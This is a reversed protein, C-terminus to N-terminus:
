DNSTESSHSLAKRIAEIISNAQVNRATDDTIQSRAFAEARRLVEDKADNSRQLAETRQREGALERDTAKLYSAAEPDSIELRAIVDDVEDYDCPLESPCRVRRDHAEIRGAARTLTGICAVPGKAQQRAIERLKEVLGDTQVELPPRSALAAEIIVQVLYRDPPNLCPTNEADHMAALGAEIMADTVDTNSKM